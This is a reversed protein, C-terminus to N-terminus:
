QRPTAFIGTAYWIGNQGRKIDYGFLAHRRVVHDWHGASQRWCDVCEEAAEVLPQGPWSEACVENAVLSAPLRANIQHFRQDWRHHGQLRISAQYRAHKETESALLDSTESWASQPRLPHTRVAFIMTRQTLTGTPLDLLVALRDLKIHGRNFPYVSVVRGFHPSDPDRQDIVALGPCKLLESFAPHGLVEIAKGGEWVTANLPLKAILFDNLRGRVTRDSALSREFEADAAAQKPDVFWILLLKGQEKAERMAQRYDSQWPLPAPSAAPKVVPKLTSDETSQALVLSASLSGLLASALLAFPLLPRRTTLM